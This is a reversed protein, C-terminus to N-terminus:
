AVSWSPPLGPGLGPLSPNPIDLGFPCLQGVATLVPTDGGEGGSGALAVSLARFHRFRRRGNKQCHRQKRVGQSSVLPPGVETSPGPTSVHVGPHGSMHCVLPLVTILRGLVVVLGLGHSFVPDENVILVRFQWKGDTWSGCVFRESCPGTKPSCQTVAWGRPRGLLADTHRLLLCCGVGGPGAIVRLHRLSHELGELWPYAPPAPKPTVALAVGVWLRGSHYENHPWSRGAVAKVVVLGWIRVREQFEEEAERGRLRLGRYWGKAQVGGGM